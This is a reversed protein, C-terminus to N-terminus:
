VLVEWSSYKWIHFQKAFLQTPIDRKNQMRLIFVWHCHIITINPPKTYITYITTNYRQFIGAYLAVLLQCDTQSNSVIYRNIICM